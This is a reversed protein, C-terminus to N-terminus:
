VIIPSPIPIIFRGGNRRYEDQQAMVEEAFNWALLLVYDPSDEILRNPPHIPQHTGGMFRGHKFPNLDVVYDILERDIACYNLLTTAKAAAGYAEIRKGKRKLEVLLDILSKRVKQTENAFNNYFRLDTVGAQRENELENQVSRGVAEHHEVYLRLSGGHIGLRRVENLYLDHRRFLSDFATVSFYCLHQHYITDFECNSILDVVYPVEIVAVGTDALITAVGRVFGNLDPVHALVNNAILLDALRGQSQLQKALEITFFDCITPIGAEVAASVPAKAPDIGLVPIGRNQFNRLMYGDNSAIEVVLSERGLKRTHILENANESAHQLLTPSVSSFYPYDDGFLIEPAITETIQLLSCEACFVLDLPAKLEPEKLQARTLLRDALPTRGFSIIQQLNPNACSRCGSITQQLPRNAL